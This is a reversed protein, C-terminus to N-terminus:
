QTEFVVSPPVIQSGVCAAPAPCYGGPGSTKVFPTSANGCEVPGAPETAPRRTPSTSTPTGAAACQRTSYAMVSSASEGTGVTVVVTTCLSANTPLTEPREARGGM